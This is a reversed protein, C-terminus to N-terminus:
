ATDRSPKRPQTPRPAVTRRVCSASRHPLEPKHRSEAGQRNRQAGRTALPVVRDHVPRTAAVVATAVVASVVSVGAAQAVVVAGAVLDALGLLADVAVAVVAHVLGLGHEPVVRDRAGDIRRTVHVVEGEGGIAALVDADLTGVLVVVAVGHQHQSTRRALHMGRGVLVGRATAHSVVVGHQVGVEVLRAVVGDADLVDAGVVAALGLVARGVEGVLDGEVLKTAVGDLVVRLVGGVDRHRHLDDVGPVRHAREDM